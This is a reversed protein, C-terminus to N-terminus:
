PQTEEWIEEEKECEPCLDHQAEDGYLEGGCRDCYGDPPVAQVDRLPNTYIM